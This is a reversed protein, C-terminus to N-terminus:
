TYNITYIIIWLKYTLLLMVYSLLTAGMEDYLMNMQLVPSYLKYLEDVAFVPTKEWILILLFNIVVYKKYAQTLFSIVHM